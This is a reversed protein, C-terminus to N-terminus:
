GSKDPNALDPIPLNQLAIVIEVRDNRPERLSFGSDQAL